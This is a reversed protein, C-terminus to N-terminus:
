SREILKDYWNQSRTTLGMENKEKYQTQKTSLYRTKDSSRTFARKTTPSYDLMATSLTAISGM